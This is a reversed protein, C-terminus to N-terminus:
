SIQSAMNKRQPELFATPLLPLGTALGLGRAPLGAGTGVDIDAGM